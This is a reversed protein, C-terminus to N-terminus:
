SDHEQNETDTDLQAEPREPVRLEQNRTNQM